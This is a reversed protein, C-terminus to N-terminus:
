ENTIVCVSDSWASYYAKGSITKYTRLRLYYPEGSSLDSLKASSNGSGAIKVQIANSFHESTAYQVQYGGVDHHTEWSVTIEQNGYVAHSIFPTLLCVTSVTAAKASDLTGDYAKLTYDYATGDKASTDTYSLSTTDAIPAFEDSGTRRFICYNAAGPVASWTLAVSDETNVASSIVPTDLTIAFQKTLTGTYRGIGTVTITGTGPNVNDSYSVTYDTGNKLTTTGDKVTVGPKRAKGTCVYRESPTSITCRSIDLAQTGVTKISSWGSYYAKGSVTKYTRLRIYYDAAPSLDSLRSSTSGSGAIKVQIANSFNESTAYQIQYGGVASHANWTVTIEQGSCLAESISPTLLRLASVAAAKTSYLTGYYAKLTYDYATGDEATTDLYSLGTTDAVAAFGDSGTRRFVRYKTAGPVASWALKIGGEANAVSSIVPTNLTIAFQKTLTGTYRGIGTVTITGTGPKINDSYSVTYDTGNKLSVTGNRVTVGPKRATGTCVYSESPTTITCHSIDLPGIYVTKPSSWSSYYATGSITKYTRLRIYYDTIPSLSSIISSTNTGGTIKLQIAGSFDKSPSYQLQYGGADFNKEWSVTMEGSGSNEASAIAPATLWYITKGTPDWSSYDADHYAKVSYSRSSGQPLSTDICSTSTTDALKTWIGFVSQYFVRYKSAGPVAAWSISVGQDTNALTCVPQSLRFIETGTDASLSRLGGAVALIQYRYSVGSETSTDVYATEGTTGMDTWSGGEAQRQVVYSDAHETSATWKLSVGKATNSISIIPCRHPVVSVTSRNTFTSVSNRVGSSITNTIKAAYQHSGLESTNVTYTTGTAGAIAANDCYWQWTLKGGDSVTVPASLVVEDGAECSIDELVPAAPTEAIVADSDETVAHLRMTLSSSAADSWVYSGSRERRLFTQGSATSDQYTCNTASSTYSGDVFFTVAQDTKLVISCAEGAALLVPNALDITVYGSRDVTGTQTTMVTGRTPNSTDVATLVSLEYDFGSGNATTGMTQLTVGTLLEAKGHNGQPTFIMAQGALNKLTLAGTTGAYYYLNENESATVYEAAMCEGSSLFSADEYSLWFYGHDGWAEGWSNRVLWAGDHEPRTSFHAASYSDDWGVLLVSHNSPQTTNCYYASHEENYYADIPNSYFSATVSGDNMIASKLANTETPNFLVANKLHVLADHGASASMHTGIQAETTSGKWQALTRIAYYDNGGQNLYNSGNYTITDGKTLGLSDPATHYVNWSLQLESLDMNATTLSTMNHSLLFAEAQGLASYSWCNGFIGQDRAAPLFGQEVSSYSEPLSTYAMAGGTGVTLSTSIYGSESLAEDPLTPSVKFHEVDEEMSPDSLIEEPTQAALAPVSLALATSLALLLSLFKPLPTRTM